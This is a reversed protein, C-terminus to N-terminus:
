HTLFDPYLRVISGYEEWSALNSIDPMYFLKFPIPCEKLAGKVREVIPAIRALVEQYDDQHINLTLIRQRNVRIILRSWQSHATALNLAWELGESRMVMAVAQAMKEREEAFRKILEREQAEARFYAPLLSNYFQGIGQLCEKFRVFEPMGGHTSYLYFDDAFPLEVGVQNFEFLPPGDPLSFVVKMVSDHDDDFYVVSKTLGEVELEVMQALLDYMDTIDTLRPGQFLVANLYDRAYVEWFSAAWWGAPDPSVIGRRVEGWKLPRRPANLLFMPVGVDGVLAEVVQLTPQVHLIRELFSSPPLSMELQYDEGVKVLLFNTRRQQELHYRYRGGGLQSELLVSQNADAIAKVKENKKQQQESALVGEVQGGCLRTFRSLIARCDAVMGERGVRQMTGWFTHWEPYGFGAHRQRRELRLLVLGNLSYRIELVLGAETRRVEKEMDPCDWSAVEQLAQEMAVLDFWPEVSMRAGLPSVLDGFLPRNLKKWLREAKPSIDAVVAHTFLARVEEGLPEYDLMVPELQKLEVEPFFTQEKYGEGLKQSVRKDFAKQAEDETAYRKVQEQEVHDELSGYRLTHVCGELELCWYRQSKGRRKELYKRMITCIFDAVGWAAYAMRPLPLSFGRKRWEGVKAGSFRFPPLVMACICLFHGVSCYYRLLM